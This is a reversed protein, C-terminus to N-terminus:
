ASRPALAPEARADLTDLLQLRQRSRDIETTICALMRTALDDQKVDNVANVKDVWASPLGAIGEYAGVIGGVMSGITDADRGFNASFIIADRARGNALAVLALCTPVTERPEAIDYYGEPAAAETSVGQPREWLMTRYFEARFRIYDGTSRALEVARRILDRMESDRDLYATSAELISDVSAAPSFAEAVAAAIAAAADLAYDEHVLCAVEYADQAAQRPDCANLMGVPAIAMATSNSSMNGRGANRPRVHDVALKYYANLVPTYYWGKMQALWTEALDDATIRGGKRIIAECFLHKLRTDDTYTGAAVNPSFRAAPGTERLDDIWGHVREITPYQMMETVQGMADGIAGGALAGYTKDYLQSSSSM